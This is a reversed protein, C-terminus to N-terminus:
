RKVDLGKCDGEQLNHKQLRGRDGERWMMEM